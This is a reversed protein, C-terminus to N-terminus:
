NLKVLGFVRINTGPQLVEDKKYSVSNRIDDNLLNEGRIGVTIEPVLGARRELKTTYSLEANLLNYGPTPTDFTAFEHQAFAHLLNVRVLWNVDRYYIGGGLRHPPMKPVYTGDALVAHVFDYQGDIGWVGRWVRAIDYETLLEAGDFTANQQSYVIQDLETGTGCSAFDSDCKAGTFRKYIFNRFDTHYVSVDFRFDGKARKFGIEYTNAAEITLNPNGIEFTATSDHPGKYFLETADPAREAHQATFRAVVGYSLDYLVGASVSKPTFHRQAPSQTPDNPPPLFDPSFTSATGKVDDSEIRAAAQLRLRKAPQLEEFVFGALSQTNTPNLLVGDAGAAQLDRNSWQMGVAGRLVGLGTKIPLHQAEMRAEYTTQLFTSGIVTVPLSGVEDHRYDTAGFWFRVADIGSAMLRYEGKATIKTEHADIRTNHDAGDLGPVHYLTNNQTLAVGIFGDQFFYSGGASQGDSRTASNPQTGSFPHGPDFLYPYRPVRYDDTKRGFADAHVAFNGAAGDVLVGGELGNDSTTAAGRLELNACNQSGQWRPDSRCFPMADPIRNNTASVVGGISQSGYRLTAPGRIVEIQNTVLPNIPVFHDEGLDSVGGGGSGNELIGVRNVDLGRIIPRSSAGPAFSSGTIGPKSFLLDGLTSSPTRRLEADPVVTVTAFQDTVVPLTGAQPTEATPPAAPQEVRGPTVRVRRVPQAAARRIPSPATVTIPALETQGHATEALATTVLLASGGVLRRRWAGIM